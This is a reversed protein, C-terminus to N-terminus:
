RVFLARTETEFCQVMTTFFRTSSWVLGAARHVARPTQPSARRVAGRDNVMQMLALPPDRDTTHPPPPAYMAIYAASSSMMMMGGEKEEEDRALQRALEAMLVCGLQLASIAALSQGDDGRATDVLRGYAASHQDFAGIFPTWQTTGSAALPIHLREHVTLKLLLGSTSELVRAQLTLFAHQFATSSIPDTTASVAKMATTANWLKAVAPLLPDSKPATSSAAASQIMVYADAIHQMSTLWFRTAETDVCDHIEHFLTQSISALGSALADVGIQYFFWPAANRNRLLTLLPQIDRDVDQRDFPQVRCLRLAIQIARKIVNPRLVAGYARTTTLLYTPRVPPDRNPKDAYKLAFSFAINLGEPDASLIAFLETWVDETTNLVSVRAITGVLYRFHSPYRSFSVNSLVDLLRRLLSGGAIDDSAAVIKTASEPRNECDRLHGMVKAAVFAVRDGAAVIDRLAAMHALQHESHQITPLVQAALRTNECLLALLTLANLRAEQCASRVAFKFINLFDIEKFHHSETKALFLLNKLAGHQVIERPDKEVYHVLLDIQARIQVVCRVALVTLTHLINLVNDEEDNHLLYELCSRRATAVLPLTHYMHRYVRIVTSKVIFNTEKDQMIAGLKEIHNVSFTKSRFAIRDAAFLAAELEMPEKSDLLLRVGHHVEINDVVIVSMYGIVRLTLARAVPDNSTLIMSIRRSVEEASTIKVLAHESHKIVKFIYQRIVNTSTRWYDALKLFGLTVNEPSPYKNFFTIYKLISQLKEELRPAKFGRDLELLEHFGPDGLVKDDM